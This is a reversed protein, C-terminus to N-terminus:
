RRGIDRWSSVNKGVLTYPGFSAKGKKSNPRLTKGDTVAVRTHLDAASLLKPLTHDVVVGLPAGTKFEDTAEGMVKMFPAYAQSLAAIMNGIDPNNLIGKPINPLQATVAAVYLTFALASKM